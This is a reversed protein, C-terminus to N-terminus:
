MESGENVDDIVKQTNFLHWYINHQIMDDDPLEIFPIGHKLLMDKIEADKAMAEEPSQTRGVKKYPKTRKIFFNYNEYGSWLEFILDSFTAPLYDPVVYNLGLLLPADTVCWDVKGILRNQRRNQTALVTLQDALTAYNEDWTLDKAYETVEEVNIRNDKMLAFVKARTTSKGTGPGGFLSIVRLKPRVSLLAM